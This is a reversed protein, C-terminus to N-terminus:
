KQFAKNRKLGPECISILEQRDGLHLSFTDM